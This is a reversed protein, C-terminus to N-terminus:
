MQNLYLKGLELLERTIGNFEFSLIINAHGRGKQYVNLLILGIAKILTSYKGLM